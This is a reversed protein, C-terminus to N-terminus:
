LLDHPIGKICLLNTDTNKKTYNKLKKIEIPKIKKNYWWVEYFKFNQEAMNDIFDNPDSGFQKAQEPSFEIILKADPSKQLISQMGQIAAFDAGQVNSNIFDFKIYSNMFYDDLKVVDVDVSKWDEHPDYIRNDM